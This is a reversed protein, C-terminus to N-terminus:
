YLKLVFLFLGVIVDPKIKKYDLKILRKLM